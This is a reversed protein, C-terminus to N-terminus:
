NINDFCLLPFENTEQDECKIKYIWRHTIHWDSVVYFHDSEDQPEIYYSTKSILWWPFLVWFASTEYWSVCNLVQITIRVELSVWQTTCIALFGERLYYKMIRTENPGSLMKKLFTWQSLYLVFLMSEPSQLWFNQKIISNSFFGSSQNM